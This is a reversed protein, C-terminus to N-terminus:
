IKTKLKIWGFRIDQSRRKCQKKKKKGTGLELRCFRFSLVSAFSKENWVFAVLSV